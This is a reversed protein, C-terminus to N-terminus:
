AGGGPSPERFMGEIAVHAHPKRPSPVEKARLEASLLSPDGPKGIVFAAMAEYREKPLSLVEYAREEDFGAMFHAELGLLHAQLALSVGAAGSDYAAHRNAKGNKAFHRRAAVIGAVPAAAAWALNAPVLLSLFRQRDADRQGWLFLWPQENFCSPAWRAAEFLTALTAAPIPEPLFARPSHRGVFLPNVEAETKRVAIADM